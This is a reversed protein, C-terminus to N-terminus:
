RLDKIRQEAFPVWFSRNPDRRVTATFRRWSDVAGSDKREEQSLALYYYPDPRNGEVITAKRITEEAMSGYGRRAYNLGLYIYIEPQTHTSSLVKLYETLAKEPRDM